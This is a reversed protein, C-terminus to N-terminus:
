LYQFEASRIHNLNDGNLSLYGSMLDATLCSHVPLIGILDGVNVSDMFKGSCKIIGHEQSISKVHGNDVTATWGNDKLQVPMGFHPTGNSILQEKSLHVAGGHIVLENRSPYKAVVPCALAVAIDDINCSGIKVQMLDYFVLNGPSIQDIGTFDDAKSSCPTDGICVSYNDREVNVADCVKSFRSLVDEHIKLIEDKSKASYSHGPHSYFGKFQLNDSVLFKEVLKNIQDFQDSTFGTRNSGTDLEVMIGVITKLKKILPELAESDSILITVKNKRALRNIAEIERINVPFAITIDDWGNEAFYSAMKVSSVTIGSVGEQKFWNGIDASQHTKFHPRFQLNQKQAKRAIRQINRRCKQEDVLLTPSTIM